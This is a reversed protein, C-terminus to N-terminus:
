LVMSRFLVPDTEAAFPFTVHADGEPTLDWTPTGIELHIAMADYAVDRLWLKVALPTLDMHDLGAPDLGAAVMLDLLQNAQERVEHEPLIHQLTYPHTSPASM